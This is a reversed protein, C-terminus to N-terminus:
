LAFKKNGTKLFFIAEVSQTHTKEEKKDAGSMCVYKLDIDREFAFHVCTGFFIVLLIADSAQIYNPLEIKDFVIQSM